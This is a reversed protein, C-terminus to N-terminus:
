LWGSDGMRIHLRVHIKGIGALSLFTVFQRLLEPYDFSVSLGQRQQCSKVSIAGGALSQEEGLHSLDHRTWEKGYQDHRANMEQLLLEPQAIRRHFLCEVAHRQVPLKCTWVDAGCAQRILAGDQGPWLVGIIVRRM